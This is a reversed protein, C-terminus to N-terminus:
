LPVRVTFTAGAGKRSEVGITGGHKAIIDSCITLGLGTCVRTDKTTFFPEFIRKITGPSIGKGTDTFTAVLASGDMRTTISLEGGLPMAEYANRIINVFVELFNTFRARPVDTSLDTKVTVNNNTQLPRLQRVASAVLENVDHDEYSKGITRSYDLLSRVIKSMRELGTKCERLYDLAKPNTTKQQLAMNTFRLIGDLPNNLEHAVSAALKGITALQESEALRHEIQLARGVDEVVLTGGEDSASDLPACTIDLLVERGDAARYVAQRLTAPRRQTVCGELVDAWSEGAATQIKLRALSRTNVDDEAFRFIEGAADNYFTLRLARDFTVLGLSISRLVSDHFGQMQALEFNASLLQRTAEEVKESLSLNRGSVERCALGSRLLGTIETCLGQLRELDAQRFADGSRKESVNVVGVLSEGDMLPVSIFSNTKYARESNRRPALREDRAIDDVLLPSAHEAVWGAVGASAPRRSGVLGPRGDGITETLCLDKSSPDYLMVSGSECDLAQLINGLTSHLLAKLDADPDLQRGAPPPSSSGATLRSDPTCAVSSRLSFGDICHRIPPRLLGAAVSV